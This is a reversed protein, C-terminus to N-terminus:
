THLTDERSMERSSWDPVCGGENPSGQPLVDRKREGEPLLAEIGEGKGTLETEIKNHEGPGPLVEPSPKHVREGKRPLTELGRGTKDQPSSERRRGVEGYAWPDLVELKAANAREAEGAPKVGVTGEALTTAAGAVPLMGGREHADVGPPEVEEGDVNEAAGTLELPVTSGIFVPSDGPVSPAGRSEQLDEAQPDPPKWSPTATKPSAGCLPLANEM